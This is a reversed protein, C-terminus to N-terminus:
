KLLLNCIDVYINQRALSKLLHIVNIKSNVKHVSKEFESFSPSFDSSIFNEIETLESASIKESNVKNSFLLLIKLISNTENESLDNNIVFHYFSYASPEDDLAITLLLKQHYKLKAIEEKESIDM